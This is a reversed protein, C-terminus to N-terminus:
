CLVFKLKLFRFRFKSVSRKAVEHLEIKTGQNM